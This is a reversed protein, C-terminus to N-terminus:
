SFDVPPHNNTLMHFYTALKRLSRSAKIRQREKIMCSCAILKIKMKSLGEGQKHNGQWPWRRSLVTAEVPMTPSNEQKMKIFHEVAAKGSKILKVKEVPRRGDFKLLFFSSTM